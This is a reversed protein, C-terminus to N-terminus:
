SWFISQVADCAAPRNEESGDWVITLIQQEFSNSINRINQIDDKMQQVEADSLLGLAANRQKYEPAKELILNKAKERIVELQKAVCHEFIREDIITYEQTLENYNQEKRYKM